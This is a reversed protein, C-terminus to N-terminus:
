LSPGVQRASPFRLCFYPSYGTGKETVHKQVCRIIVAAKGSNSMFSGFALVLGEM